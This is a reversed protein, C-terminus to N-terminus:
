LNYYVIINKKKLTNCFNEPRHTFGARTPFFPEAGVSIQARKQADEAGNLVSVENYIKVCVSENGTAEPYKNLKQASIYFIM